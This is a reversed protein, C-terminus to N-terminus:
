DKLCELIQENTLEDNSTPLTTGEEFIKEEEFRLLSSNSDFKKLEPQFTIFDPLNDNIEENELAKPSGNDGFSTIRFLSPNIQPPFSFM